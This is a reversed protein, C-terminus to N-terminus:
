LNSTSKFALRHTGLARRSLRPLAPGEPMQQHGERFTAERSILKLVEDLVYTQPSQAVAAALGGPGGGGRGGGGGGGGPACIGQASCRVCLGVCKFGSQRLEGTLVFIGRTTTM